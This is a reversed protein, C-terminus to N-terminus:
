IYSKRKEHLLIADDINSDINHGRHVLIILVEVCYTDAFNQLQTILTQQTTIYKEIISKYMSNILEEADKIQELTCITLASNCLENIGGYHKIPKLVECLNHLSLHITTKAM